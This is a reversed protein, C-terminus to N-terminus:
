NQLFKSSNFNLQYKGQITQDPSYHGSSAVVQYPISELSQSRAKGHYPQNFREKVCTDPPAGLVSIFVSTNKWLVNSSDRWDWWRSIWEVFDCVIGFRNFNEAFSVNWM